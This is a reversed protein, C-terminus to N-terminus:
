VLNKTYRGCFRLNKVSTINYFQSSAIPNDLKCFSSALCNEEACYIDFRELLSVTPM